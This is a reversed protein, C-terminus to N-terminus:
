RLVASAGLLAVSLGQLVFAVLSWRTSRRAYYVAQNAHYRSAKALVAADAARM